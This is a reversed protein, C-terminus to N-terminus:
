TIWAEMSQLLGASNFSFLPFNVASARATKFFRTRRVLGRCSSLAVRGVTANGITVVGSHYCDADFAHFMKRTANARHEVPIDSAMFEKSRTMNLLFVKGFATIKVYHRQETRMSRLGYPIVSGNGDVFVPAITESDVVAKPDTDATYKRLPVQLTGPAIAVLICLVVFVNCVNM